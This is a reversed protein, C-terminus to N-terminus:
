CRTIIYFPQRQRLFVTEFNAQGGNCIASQHVVIYLCNVSQLLFALQIHAHVYHQTVVRSIVPSIQIFLRIFCVLHKYLSDLHISVARQSAPACTQQLRICIFFTPIPKQQLIFFIIVAYRRHNGFGIVLHARVCDAVAGVSRHEFNIVLNQIAVVIFAPAYFMCLNNIRGVKSQKCFRRDHRGNLRRM